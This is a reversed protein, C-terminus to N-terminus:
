FSYKNYLCQLAMMVASHTVIAVNERNDRVIKQLAALVRELLDQYSEGLPAKTYRRHKVM